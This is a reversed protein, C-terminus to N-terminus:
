SQFLSSSEMFHWLNIQWEIHLIYQVYFHRCEIRHEFKLNFVSKWNLINLRWKILALLCFPCSTWHLGVCMLNSDIQCHLKGWSLRIFCSCNDDVNYKIENMEIKMVNNWWRKYVASSTYVIVHHVIIWNNKWNIDSLFMSFM